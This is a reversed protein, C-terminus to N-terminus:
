VGLLGKDTSLTYVEITVTAKPYQKVDYEIFDWYLKWPLSELKQLYNVVSFYGGELTIQVAHKYVGIIREEALREDDVISRAATDYQEEVVDVADDLEGGEDNGRMAGSLELKVPAISKMGKLQLRNSERLVDHLVEPLKSASLLGVAMEELEHNAQELQKELRMIERRKAVNPDRSLNKVLIKEQSSLVKLERNANDFRTVLIERREALATAFVMDWVLYIAALISIAILARERLQLAVFADSVGEWKGKLQDTIRM